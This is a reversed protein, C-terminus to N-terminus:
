FFPDFPFSIKYKINKQVKITLDSFLLIEQQVFKRALPTFRVEIKVLCNQEDGENRETDVICQCSPTRM